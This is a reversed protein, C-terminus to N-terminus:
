YNRGAALLSSFKDELNKYKDKIYKLYYQPQKLNAEKIEKIASLCYAFSNIHKPCRIISLLIGIEIIEIHISSCKIYAQEDARNWRNKTYKEYLMITHNKHNCNKYDYIDSSKKSKKATFVCCKKAYKEFNINFHNRKLKSDFDIIVFNIAAWTKEM